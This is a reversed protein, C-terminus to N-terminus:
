RISRDTGYRDSAYGYRNALAKVIAVADTDLAAGNAAITVSRGGQSWSAYARGETGLEVQLNVQKAVAIAADEEDTGTYVTGRLGLRVEAIRAEADLAGETLALADASLVPHATIDYLM